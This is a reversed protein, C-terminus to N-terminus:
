AVAEGVAHILTGALAGFGLACGAIAGVALTRGLTGPERTNRNNKM